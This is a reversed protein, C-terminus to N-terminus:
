LYGRILTYFLLKHHQSIIQVRLISEQAIVPEHHKPYLNLIYGFNRVEPAAPQPTEPRSSAAAPIESLINRECFGMKLVSTLNLNM